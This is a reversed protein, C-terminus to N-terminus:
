ATNRIRSGSDPIQHSKFERIRFSKEPDRFGLGYIYTSLSLRCFTSYKKTLQSLIEKQVQEFFLYNEIRYFKHCGFDPISLVWFGPYVDRIRLVAWIFIFVGGSLWGCFKCNSPNRGAFLSFLMIFFTSGHSFCAIKLLVPYPYKSNTSFKWLVM